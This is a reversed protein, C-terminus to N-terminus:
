LLRVLFTLPRALFNSGKAVEWRYSWQRALTAGGGEGFWMKQKVENKIKKAVREFILRNVRKTIKKIFNQTAWVKKTSCWRNSTRSTRRTTPDFLYFCYSSEGFFNPYNSKLHSLYKVKQVKSFSCSFCFISTELISYKLFKFLVEPLKFTLNEQHNSKFKKTVIYFYIFVIPLNVWFKQYNGMNFEFKMNRTSSCSASSTKRTSLYSIREPLVQLYIDFAMGSLWM